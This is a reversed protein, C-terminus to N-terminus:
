GVSDAFRITEFSQGDANVRKSDILGKRVDNIKIEIVFDKPLIVPKESEDLHITTPTKQYPTLPKDQPKIKEELELRFDKSGEVSVGVKTNNEHLELLKIKLRINIDTGNSAQVSFAEGVKLVKKEVVDFTPIKIENKDTPSGGELSNVTKLKKVGQPFIPNSGGAPNIPSVM